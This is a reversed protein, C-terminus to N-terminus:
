SVHPQRLDQSGLVGMFGWLVVMSGWPRDKVIKIKKLSFATSSLFGADGQITSGRYNSISCIGGILQLIEEM